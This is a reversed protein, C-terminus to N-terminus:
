AEISMLLALADERKGNRILNKAQIFRDEVSLNDYRDGAKEIAENSPIGSDIAALEAIDNASLVENKKVNEPLAAYGIPDSVVPQYLTLVADGSARM